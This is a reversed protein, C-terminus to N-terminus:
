TPVLFFWLGSPPVPSVCGLLPRGAQPGALSRLSLEAAETPPSQPVRTSRRVPGLCVSEVGVGFTATGRGALSPPGWAAGWGSTGRPLTVGWGRERGGKLTVPRLGRPAPAEPRGTVQLAVRGPGPIHMLVAAMGGGPALRGPGEHAQFMGLFSASVHLGGPM